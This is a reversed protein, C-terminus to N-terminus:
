TQRAEMSPLAPPFRLVSEARTSASIPSSTFARTLSPRIHVSRPRAECPRPRRACERKLEEREPRGDEQGRAEQRGEEGGGEEATEAGAARDPAGRRVGGSRLRDPARGRGRRDLDAQEDRVEGPRCPRIQPLRVSRREPRWPSGM